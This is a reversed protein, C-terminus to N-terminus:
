IMTTGLGALEVGAESRLVVLGRNVAKRTKVHDPVAQLNKPLQRELEGDAGQGKRQKERGSGNNANWSEENAAKGKQSGSSGLSAQAKSIQSLMSSSISGSSGKTMGALISTIDKISRDSSKGALHKKQEHLCEACLTTNKFQCYEECNCKVELDTDYVTCEGWTVAKSRSSSAM